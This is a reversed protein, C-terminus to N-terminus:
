DHDDFGEGEGEGSGEEEEEEKLIDFVQKANMGRFREDVAGIAKGNRQPMAILLEDKDM